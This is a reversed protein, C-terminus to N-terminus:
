DRNLTNFNLEDDQWNFARKEKAAAPAEGRLQAALLERSEAAMAKMNEPLKDSVPSKLVTPPVMRGTRKYQKMIKKYEEETSTLDVPMNNEIASEFRNKVNINRRQELIGIIHARTEADQELMTLYTNIDLHIYLFYDYCGDLTKSQTISEDILSRFKDGNGFISNSFIMDIIYKQKAVDLNLIENIDRPDDNILYEKVYTSIIYRVASVDYRITAPNYTKWDIFNMPTYFVKISDNAGDSRKLKIGYIRM